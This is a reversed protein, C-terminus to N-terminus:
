SRCFYCRHMCYSMIITAWVADMTAGETFAEVVMLATPM